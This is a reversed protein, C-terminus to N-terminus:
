PAPKLVRGSARRSERRPSERSGRRPAGRLGGELGQKLGDHVLMSAHAVRHPRGKPCAPSRTLPWTVCNPSHLRTGIPGPKRTRGRRRQGPRDQGDLPTKMCRLTRDRRSCPGSSSRTSFTTARASSYLSEPSATSTKRRVTSAAALASSASPLLDARVNAKQGARHTAQSSRGGRARRSRTELPERALRHASTWCDGSRDEEHTRARTLDAHVDGRIM